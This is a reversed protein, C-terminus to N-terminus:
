ADRPGHLVAEGEDEQDGHHGQDDHAGHDVALVVLGVHAGGAGLQLRGLLGLVALDAVGLEVVLHALEGVSSWRAMSRSSRASAM